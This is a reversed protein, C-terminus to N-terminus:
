THRSKQQIQNGDTACSPCLCAKNRSSAPIQDLAHQSITETMCWCLTDFSGAAAPQCHNDAGCLPCSHEPRPSSAHSNHSTHSETMGWLM